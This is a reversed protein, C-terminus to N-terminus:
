SVRFKETFKSDVPFKHGVTHVFLIYTSYVTIGIIATHKPKSKM